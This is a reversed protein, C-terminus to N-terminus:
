KLHILAHKHLKATLAQRSIGLTKSTHTRNFDHKQLARHIYQKELKAMAEHLPGVRVPLELVGSIRESFDEPQLEREDDAMLVAREIENQLQRINGPWAYHELQGMVREGIGTISRAFRGNFGKLFHRALLPVDSSRDRLPPLKIPFVNVRYFLDERFRGAAVEAQLDKNTAAVIRADVYHTRASGVPTIEGNELVRLLKVQLRPSIDGFEDLFLTGGDAVHLLGKKDRTAGTFAGRVHGFLESELLTESLAGCNVAAFIKARRPSQEHIRKAILEKGTGTEGLVLVTTNTRAVAEVQKLVQKLGASEGIIPTTEKKDVQDLTQRLYVNEDKLKSNAARRLESTLANQLTLSAQFAILTLWDLAWPVLPQESAVIFLGQLTDGDFFPSALALKLRRTQDELCRMVSPADEVLISSRRQLAAEFLPEVKSWPLPLPERSDRRRILLPIMGRKTRFFLGALKANPLTEFAFSVLLGAISGLELHRQLQPLLQMLADLKDIDFRQNRLLEGAIHSADHLARSAVITQDSLSQEGAVVDPYSLQIHVPKQRDGLLVVPDDGELVAERHKLGDLVVEKDEQLVMSGNTSGLDQLYYHDERRIIQAHISSVKPHDIQVM